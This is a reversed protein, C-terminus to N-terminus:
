ACSGGEVNARHNAHLRALVDDAGEEGSASPAMRVDRGIWVDRSVGAPTPSRLEEAIGSVEAQYAASPVVEEGILRRFEIIPDAAPSPPRTPAPLGNRDKRDLEQRDFAQDAAEAKLLDLDRRIRWALPTTGTLRLRAVLHESARARAGAAHGQCRARLWTVGTRLRRHCRSAVREFQAVSTVREEIQISRDDGITVLTVSKAGAENIDRGQPMGPMVIARAGQVVSRKHVHGLAWYDFAPAHLDAISCPAYLTTVRHM